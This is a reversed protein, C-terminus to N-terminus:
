NIKKNSYEGLEVFKKDYIGRVNVFLIDFFFM